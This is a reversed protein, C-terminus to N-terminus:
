RSGGRRVPPFSALVGNATHWGTHREGPNWAELLGVHGGYTGNGCIVAVTGKKGPYLTRMKGFDDMSEWAIGNETLRRRLTEMENETPEKDAQMEDCLEELEWPEIRDDKGILGFLM